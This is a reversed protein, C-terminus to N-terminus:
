KRDLERRVAVGIQELTYPKVVYAGGGLDLLARVKQSESFGSAIIAKQGPAVELIRTYTQLGDMGGPMIMDLIVLDVGTQSLYEVAAEGSTVTSVQYGLKGLMNAAIQSQEPADDVVLIRESGLYSELAVPGTPEVSEGCAPLYIEILTGEGERSKLDIYGGHDKVTAWIVTMGLGSGSRKLAKKSFFPEFIRHLDREAVGVGEDRVAVCVWDGPPVEEYGRYSRELTRNCTSVRVEGGAPMAEFANNVMNMLAKALHLRSGRVCALDEALDSTLAIRPHERLCAAFELTGLYEAILQNLSVVEQAPTGRRGLTLLDQVIAAAKQGSRQILSLKDRLPSEPPLELLLLDPYAVLGVLINNLDHAIGAALRGIAEMKQAQMLKEELMKQEAIDRIIGQTGLFEDPSPVEGRYIGEASISFPGVPEWTGGDGHPLLLHLELDRTARPGTRKENLRHNARPLEEPPVLDLIPKGLLAAPDPIYRTIAPSLFIVRGAADLRFIIDPVSNIISNLNKESSKLLILTSNAAQHAVQQGQRTKILTLVLYNGFVQLTPLLPSFLAARQQFLLVAALWCGAIGAAGAAAGSTVGLRLVAWTTGAAAVVGALLEWLLYSDPRTVPRGSLLNDLVQAHVEAHSTLVGAPTHHQTDLGAASCGVIAVKGALAARAPSRELLDAASLRAAAAGPELFRVPLNGRLDIPISRGGVLLDLRGLDRELVEIQESHLYQMLLALSLSPYLNGRYGILLPVRRLVGDEDAGANLFGSRKVANAFPAQNCVVGQATFIDPKVAAPESRDIWVVGRPHLQCGSNQQPTNQFLFQYGLVFPGKALTAALTGDPDATGLAPSTGGEGASAPIGPLSRSAEERPEPEALILDLGVAAAGSSGIIELLRAMRDRPWPWRGYRALSQDDIDVIVVAGTAPRQKSLNLVLDTARNNTAAILRPQLLYAIGLLLTLAGAVLLLTRTTRPQPDTPLPM